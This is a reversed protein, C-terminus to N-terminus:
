GDDLVELGLSVRFTRPNACAFIATLGQANSILAFGLSVNPSLYSFLLSIYILSLHIYISCPSIEPQSHIRVSNILKAGLSVRSSINAINPGSDLTM